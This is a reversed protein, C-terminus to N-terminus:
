NGPTATLMGGTLCIGSNMPMFGSAAFFRMRIKRITQGFRNFRESMIYDNGLAYPNLAKKTYMQGAYVIALKVTSSTSVDLGAAIAASKAASRFDAMGNNYYSKTNPLVIWDPIGDSNNDPNLVYGDLTFNGDSIIKYYDRMSGYVRKGDPCFMNPFVYVGESFFLDNWDDMTYAPLGHNVPNRHKVDSFEVLLVKLTWTTNILEGVSGITKQDTGCIFDEDVQAYGIGLYILLATLIFFKFKMM